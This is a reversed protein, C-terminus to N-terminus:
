HSVFDIIFAGTIVGTISFHQKNSIFTRKFVLQRDNLSSRNLLHGSAINKENIAREKNDDTFTLWETFFYISLYISLYEKNGGCPLTNKCAICVLFAHFLM